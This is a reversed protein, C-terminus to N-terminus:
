GDDAAVLALGRAWSEQQKGERTEAHRRLLTARLFGQILEIFRLPRYQARVLSGWSTSRAPPHGNTAVQHSARQKEREQAPREDSVGSAAM